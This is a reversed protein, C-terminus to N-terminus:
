RPQNDSVAKLDRTMNAGFCFVCMLRRRITLTLGSWPSGKQHPWQAEPLRRPQHTSDLPVLRRLLLRGTPTTWAGPIVPLTSTYVITYSYTFVFCEGGMNKTNEHVADIRHICTGDCRSVCHVLQLLLTAIGTTTHGGLSLTYCHTLIGEITEHKTTHKPQKSKEHTQSQRTILRADWDM